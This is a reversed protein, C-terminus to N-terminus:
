SSCPGQQATSWDSRRIGGSRRCESAGRSGSANLALAFSGNGDLPRAASASAAASSFSSAAM